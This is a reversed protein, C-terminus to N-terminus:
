PIIEGYFEVRDIKEGTSYIEMSLAITEGPNIVNPSEYRRIGIMQGHGDFAVAAISVKGPQTGSADLVAKVTIAASLGNKGIVVGPEEFVVESNQTGNQNGSMSTRIQVAVKPNMFVPPPFYAYLPLTVGTQVRNLPLLGTQVMIEGTELDTLLFDVTINELSFTQQNTINAVCFLGGSLAPTCDPDGMKLPFPTPTSAIQTTGTGKPAPIWLTMGVSLMYPDVDPNAAMLEDLTIGNKFAIVILTDQDSVTYIRPTPTLTPVLTETPSYLSTATLTPTLTGTGYPTLKENLFLPVSTPTQMGQCASIVFIFSVFVLFQFLIKM